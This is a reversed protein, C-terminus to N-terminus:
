SKNRPEVVESSDAFGIIIYTNWSPTSYKTFTQRNAYKYFTIQLLTVLNCDTRKIELEMVYLLLYYVLVLHKSKLFLGNFGQKVRNTLTWWLSGKSIESFSCYLCWEGTKSM